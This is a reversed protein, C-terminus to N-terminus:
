FPKGNILIKGNKSKIDRFGVKRKLRDVVTGNQVIEVCLDYLNPHDPSWCSLEERHIIFSAQKTSDERLKKGNKSLSYTIEEFRGNINLQVDISDQTIVFDVTEMFTDELLELEVPQWMGTINGYWDQKGIIEHKLEEIKKDEVVVVIENEGEKMQKTVDFSFADFGGRHCGADEGNVRVRTFLDSGFFCLRKHKHIQEQDLFVVKRFYGVLSEPDPYSAETIPISGPIHIQKDYNLGDYSMEWVGTLSITQRM